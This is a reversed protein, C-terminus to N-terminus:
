GPFVMPQAARASATAGSTGGLPGTWRARLDADRIPDTVQDRGPLDVSKDIMCGGLLGGITLWLGVMVTLSAARPLRSREPLQM